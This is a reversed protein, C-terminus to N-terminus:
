KQDRHKWAHSMWELIVSASQLMTCTSINNRIDLYFALLSVQEEEEIVLVVRALLSYCLPPRVGITWRLEQSLSCLNEINYVYVTQCWGKRLHRTSTKERSTSTQLRSSVLDALRHRKIQHLVLKTKQEFQHFSNSLKRAKFRQKQMQCVLSSPPSVRAKHISPLRRM